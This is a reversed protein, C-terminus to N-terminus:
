ETSSIKWGNLQKGISDIILSSDAYQKVSILKMDSSLRLLLLVVELKNIANVIYNYRTNINSNAFYIDIILDITTNLIREGLNYKFDKSFNRTINTIQLLLSYTQRYVPLDKALM